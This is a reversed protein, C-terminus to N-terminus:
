IWRLGLSGSGAMRRRLGWGGRAERGHESGGHYEPGSSAHRHAPWLGARRWKDAVAGEPRRPVARCHARSLTSQSLSLRMSSESQGSRRRGDGVGSGRERDLDNLISVASPWRAVAHWRPQWLGGGNPTWAWIGDAVALCAVIAVCASPTHSPTAYGWAEGVSPSSSPSPGTARRPLSCPLACRPGTARRSARRRLSCPDHGGASIRRSLTLTHTFLPFFQGM